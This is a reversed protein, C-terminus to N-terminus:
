ILKCSQHLQIINFALKDCWLLGSYTHIQLLITYKNNTNLWWTMGSEECGWWSGKSFRVAARWAERDFVTEWFKCLNMDLSQHHWGAMEGETARKEKQRWDKGTSSDKRTLWNEDLPWITPTGAEPDTSGILICLHSGKLNVPKIEKILNLPCELTKELVVTRFCWNKPARGEKNDPEWLWSHSSSLSYLAKVIRVKAPLTIAKSKLVSDLNTMAKRGLLLQRRIEHSCDSDVTIKSGLSLPFRDSSGGKRRRNAM